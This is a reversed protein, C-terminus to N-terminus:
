YDYDYIDAVCGVGILINSYIIKLQATVLGFLVAFGELRGRFVTGPFTCIVPGTHCLTQAAPLATHVHIPTHATHTFADALAAQKLHKSSM